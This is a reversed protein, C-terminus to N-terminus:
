SKILPSQMNILGCVIAVVDDLVSVLKNNVVAHPKLLKYLCVRRILREIHIRLSALVKSKVVESKTM